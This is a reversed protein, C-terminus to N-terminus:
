RHLSHKPVEDKVSCFRCQYKKCLETNLSIM